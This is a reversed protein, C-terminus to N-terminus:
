ALLPKVATGTGAWSVLPQKTEFFRKMGFADPSVGHWHCQWAVPPRRVAALSAAFTNRQTAAGHKL